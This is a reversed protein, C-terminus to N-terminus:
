TKEGYVMNQSGLFKNRARHGAIPLVPTPVWRVVIEVSKGIAEKKSFTLAMCISSPQARVSDRPSHASSFSTSGAQKEQGKRSERLRSDGTFDGDM